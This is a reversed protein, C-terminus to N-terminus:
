PIVEIKGIKLPYIFSKRYSVLGVTNLRCKELNQDFYKSKKAEMDLQVRVMDSCFISIHYAIYKYKQVDLWWHLHIMTRIYITASSVRGQAGKETQQLINIYNRFINGRKGNQSLRLYLISLKLM